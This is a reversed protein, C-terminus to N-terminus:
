GHLGAENTDQADDDPLDDDAPSSPAGNPAIYHALRLARTLASQAAAGKTLAAHIVNEGGLALGLQESTLFEFHPLTGPGFRARFPAVIKGRGDPAADSATILALVDGADIASRVRTSGTAIQGAKRALGLAGLLRQTLHTQTLEVLDPSIRLQTKLGRSFAKKKIAAAVSAADASVWVGRGPAKADIDPWLDGEPGAVFRILDTVPRTQRTLCCERETENRRPM